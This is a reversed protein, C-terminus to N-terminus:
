AVKVGEWVGADSEVAVAAGFTGAAFQHLHIGGQETGVILELEPDADLNGLVVETTQLAAGFSVGAAFTGDGNNLYLRNALGRNGAVLDLDGDGDIDGLALSTTSMPTSDIAVPLSNFADGENVYKLIGQQDTAVILDHRSTVPNTDLDGTVIARTPVSFVEDDMLANKTTEATTQLKIDRGTLRADTAVDITAETEIWRYGSVTLFSWPTNFLDDALLTVDGANFGGTAHALGSCASVCCCNKSTSSLQMCAKGFTVARTKAIRSTIPTLVSSIQASSPM